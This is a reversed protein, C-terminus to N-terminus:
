RDSTSAWFIELFILISLEHGYGVRFTERVVIDCHYKTYCQYIIITAKIKLVVIEEMGVQENFHYIFLTCIFNSFGIFPIMNKIDSSTNSGLLFIIAHNESFMKVVLHKRENYMFVVSQVTGKWGTVSIRRRIYRSCSRITGVVDEDKRTQKKKRRKM